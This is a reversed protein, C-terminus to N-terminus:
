NLKPGIWVVGSYLPITLACGRGTRCLIRMLAPILLFMPLSPLVFWFTSGVHAEKRAPDETELRLWLTGM